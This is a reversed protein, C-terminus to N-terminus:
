EPRTIFSFSYPEKLHTGFIDRAETGVTVTYKTNYQLSGSLNFDLRTKSDNYWQLTGSIPPSIELADEVSSKIMYTNFYLRIDQSTSVFLEGNGPYTSSLGVGATTFSFEFPYGLQNGDLDTADADISIVYETAARLVGGTYIVMENLQPWIFIIESAPTMHLANETSEQDMNRPFTIRIGSNMLLAVDVDGHYPMTQIGNLTSSSQVTSFSFELPFRLHTGATDRAATSLQVHYTTDTYSDKQSVRYSFSTIKSFTTITAGPDFGGTNWADEYYIWTPAQSYQGWYFIGETPPDTSFAQEVSERDMPQTFTMSITLRSFRNNYVIEDKDKPYHEAVLDPITSLDIEGIYTTGAGTVLVNPKKYIRYNTAKISVDYNGLPLDAIEFSGDVPDIAVSDVPDVQSVYVMAESDKQLVKGIINGHYADNYLRPDTEYYNEECGSLLSVIVLLTFLNLTKM